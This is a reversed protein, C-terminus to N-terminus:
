FPFAAMRFLFPQQEHAVHVHYVGGALPVVVGEAALDDVIHQPAATGDIDFAAQATEEFCKLLQNGLAHGRLAVQVQEARPGLFVGAGARFHRHFVQVAM